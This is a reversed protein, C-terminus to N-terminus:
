YIIEYEIVTHNQNQWMLQYCADTKKMGCKQMVKASAANELFCQATIRRYELHFLNNIVASLAETTYGKNWHPEGIAYGLEMSDSTSEQELLLGIVEHTEKVELIYILKGAKQYALLNEVTAQSPSDMYQALFTKLVNPNHHIMYYLPLADSSKVERLILRKTEISRKM